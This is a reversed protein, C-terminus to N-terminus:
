YRNRFHDGQTPDHSVELPQMGNKMTDNEETLLKNEVNVRDLAVQDSVLRQLHKKHQLQSDDIQIKTQIQEHSISDIRM